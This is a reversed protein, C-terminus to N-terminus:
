KNSETKLDRDTRGEEYLGELAIVTNNELIFRIRFDPLGELIFENENLPTLKHKKRTGRQYYLKENEFTVVRENYRGTYSKLNALEIKIPNLLMKQTELHWKYYHKMQANQTKKLLSDLATIRAVALAQDAKVKIHPVVGTGEWNTNTIPNIANGSPIWIAFRDTLIETGGAHAGGGTTEGILTARKLHKLNYSFEEAASFTSSSTLIYIHANPNRKGSVHPLTWTQKYTDTPRWYINNLHVVDKMGYFYSTILQVMGPTGGGNQRLDIIIADTNSLFNMAAVATEGAYQTEFFGKLNLYGINGELIKVEKFGFNDRKMRGIQENLFKISDAVTIVEKEQAIMEPAYIVRLHIDNSILQLDQTLKYAFKMPDVISKYLGKKFNNKLQSVMKEAIEPFIYNARLKNEISDIIIEAQKLTLGSDQNQAILNGTQFLIISLLIIISLKFKKM